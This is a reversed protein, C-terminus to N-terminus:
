SPFPGGDMFPPSGGAMDEMANNFNNVVGQTNQNMNPPPGFNNNQPTAQPQQYNQQPAAAQPAAKQNYGNNQNSYGVPQTSRFKFDEKMAQSGVFKLVEAIALGESPSFNIGIPKSQQGQKFSISIKRDEPKNQDSIFDGVWCMKQNGQGNGFNSKGTDVFITFKGFKPGMGRAWIELSHGLAIVKEFDVKITIRNNRDYTRQGDNTAGPTMSIFCFYKSKYFPLEPNTDKVLSIEFLNQAPFSKSYVNELTNGQSM